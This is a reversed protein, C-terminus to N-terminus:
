TYDIKHLTLETFAFSTAKGNTGDIITVDHPVDVHMATVRIDMFLYFWDKVILSGCVFNRYVIFCGYCPKEIHIVLNSGCHSFGVLYWLFGSGLMM